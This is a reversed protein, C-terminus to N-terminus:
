VITEFLAQAAEVFLDNLNAARIRLGLDATHEFVEHMGIMRVLTAARRYLLCPITTDLEPHVAFRESAKALRGACVNSFRRRCHRRLCAAHSRCPSAIRRWSIFVNRVIM